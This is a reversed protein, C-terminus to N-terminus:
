LFDVLNLITPVSCATATRKGKRGEVDLQQGYQFGINENAISQKEWNFFVPLDVTFPTQHNIM